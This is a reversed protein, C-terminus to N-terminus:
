KSYPYNENYHGHGYDYVGCSEEAVQMKYREEELLDIDDNLFSNDKNKIEPEPEPLAIGFASCTATLIIAFVGLLVIFMGM